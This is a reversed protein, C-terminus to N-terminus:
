IRPRAVYLGGRVAGEERVELMGQEGTPVEQECAAALSEAASYGEGAAAHRQLIEQQLAALLPKLEEKLATVVGSLAAPLNMRCVVRDGPSSLAGLLASLKDHDCPLDNQLSSSLAVAPTGRATFKTKTVSLSMKARAVQKIYEAPQPVPDLSFTHELTHIDSLMRDIFSIALSTAGLSDYARCVSDVLTCRWALFRPSRLATHAEMALAAHIAFPLVPRAFGALILQTILSHSQSTANYVAWYLSSNSVACNIGQKIDQASYCRTPIDDLQTEV